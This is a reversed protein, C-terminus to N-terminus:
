APVAVQFPAALPVLEVDGDSGDLWMYIAFTSPRDLAVMPHHWVDARFTIGLGGDVIFARARAADPRSDAGHPAVIAFYRAPAGVPVFSQSSFAHREMQRADLPLSKAPEITALSLSPRAGPRANSLAGDFFQRSFDKPPVLLDGFPAFAEATIPEALLTRM